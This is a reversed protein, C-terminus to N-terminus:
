RVFGLEDLSRAVDAFSAPADAARPAPNRGLMDSIWASHRAEVSVIRLVLRLPRESLNAAQANYGSVAMEELDHATAAFEDPDATADGFVLRPPPRGAPGLLSRLAREHAREHGSVVIAFERLEGDLRRRAVAESYFAAQVYELLLALNLIEVDAASVPGAGAGAPRGALVGGALAGGAAAMAAKLVAARSLRRDGWGTV